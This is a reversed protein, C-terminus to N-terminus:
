LRLTVLRVKKLARYLRVFMLFISKGPVATLPPLSRCSSGAELPFCLWCCRVSSTM